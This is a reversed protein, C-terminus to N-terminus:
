SSRLPRKKQEKRVLAAITSQQKSLAQAMVSEDVLNAGMNITSNIVTGGGGTSENQNKVAEIYEGVKDKPIVVEGGEMYYTGDRPIQGGNHFQGQVSQIGSLASGVAAAAQVSRAVKEYWTGDGAWVKAVAQYQSILTESLAVGKTLAFAAVAMSKSQNFFFSMGSLVESYKQAELSIEEFVRQRTLDEMLASHEESTIYNQKLMEDYEAKQTQFSYKAIQSSDKYFDSAIQLRANYYERERKLREEAEADEEEKRKQAIKDRLEQESKALYTLAKEADSLRQTIQQRNKDTLKLSEYYEKAAKIKQKQVALERLAVSTNEKNALLIEDIYDLGEKIADNLVVRAKTEQNTSTISGQNAKSPTYEVKSIEDVLNSIFGTSTEAKLAEQKKELEELKLKLEDLDVGMFFKAAGKSVKEGEQIKKQIKTIQGEVEILQLVTNDTLGDLFSSNFKGLLTLVKYIFKEIRIATDQIIKLVNVAITKSIEFIASGTSEGEKVIGKFREVLSDFTNKFSTSFLALTTYTVEEVIIKLQHFSTYMDNIRNILTGSTGAGLSEATSYYEQLTKGSRDMTTYLRYMSDNVEDAWFRASSPDLGSLVQQFRSFKEVPDLELWDEASEGIATFFDVLSGGGSAADVVRVNLDKLADALYESELGLSGTAYKLKSYESVSLGATTAMRQLDRQNEYLKYGLTGLAAATGGGVVSLKSVSSVLSSVSSGASEIKKNFSAIYSKMNKLSTKFNKEAQQTQQILKAANASMAINVNGITVNRGAM